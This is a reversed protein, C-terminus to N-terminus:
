HAHGRLRPEPEPAFDITSWPDEGAKAVPVTFGDFAPAPVQDGTLIAAREENAAQLRARLEKVLEQTGQNIETAEEARGTDSLAGSSSLRAGITVSNKSIPPFNQHARRVTTLPLLGHLPTDGGRAQEVLDDAIEAASRSALAATENPSLGPFLPPAGKPACPCPPCYTVNSVNTVNTANPAETVNSPLIFLVWMVASINLAAAQRVRARRLLHRGSREVLARRQVLAVSPHSPVHKFVTEDEVATHSSGLDSQLRVFFQSRPAMCILQLKEAVHEEFASVNAVAM